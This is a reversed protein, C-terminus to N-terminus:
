RRRGGSTGTASEASTSLFAASTKSAWSIRPQASARLPDIWHSVVLGPLSALELAPSGSADPM